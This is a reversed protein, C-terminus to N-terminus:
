DRPDFARRRKEAYMAQDAESLGTNAVGISASIVLMTSGLDFPTALSQALRDATLRGAEADASDGLLVAFEDGGLRAVLDQPRVSARLRTAVQRLLEDGASHGWQDNVSKFRDLDAMLVTAPNGAPVADLALQFRRRNALGTLEDTLSLLQNEHVSWTLRQAGILPVLFLPLLSPRADLLELFIPILAYTSFATLADSELSSRLHVRVRIGTTAALAVAVLLRNTVFLTVAALGIATLDRSNSSSGLPLVVAQTIGFSLLYQGANAVMRHPPKAAAINNALTSLVLVPAVAVMGYRLQLALLLSLAVPAELWGSRAGGILLPRLRAVFVVAAGVWYATDLVRPTPGIWATLAVAVAGGLALLGATLWRSAPGPGHLSIRPQTAYQLDAVDRLRV